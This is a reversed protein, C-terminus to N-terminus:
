GCGDELRWCGPDVASWRPRAQRRERPQLLTERKLSTQVASSHHTRRACGCGIWSSMNLTAPLSQQSPAHHRCGPQPHPTRARAGPSAAQHLRAGTCGLTCQRMLQERGARLPSGQREPRSAHTRAGICWCALEGAARQPCAARDLASLGAPRQHGQRCASGGSDQGHLHAAHQTARCCRRAATLERCPLEACTRSTCEAIAAGAPSQLGRARGAASAAAAPGTPQCRTAGAAPRSARLRAAARCAGPRRPPPFCSSGPKGAPAVPARCDKGGARGAALSFDIAQKRQIPPALCFSCLPQFGQLTTTCDEPLLAQVSHPSV